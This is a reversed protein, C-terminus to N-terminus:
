KLDVSRLWYFVDTPRPMEEMGTLRDSRYARLYDESYLFVAVADDVIIQQAENYIERRAEQDPLTQGTVLLENLHENNYGFVRQGLTATHFVWYIHDPDVINGFGSLALEASGDRHQERFTAADLEQVEIDIGVAELYQEILLAEDTYSSTTKLTVPTGAVWGAEALLQMAKEPDYPYCNVQDNYFGSNVSLPGCTRTVVGPYLTMVEEKDIAYAIAQRVRVDSLNPAATNMTVMHYGLGPSALVTIDPSDALRQADDASIDIILDFDGSELGIVRTAAEEVWRFELKDVNPRGGWYDDFAALVIREGRDWSEFKFPGTGVYMPETWDDGRDISFLKQNRVDEATLENGNADTTPEYTAERAEAYYPELIHEPLIRINLAVTQLMFYGVPGATNVIVTYDDVKEVPNESNLIYEDVRAQTRTFTWVVDDANFDEGDHWKVGQRLNFQYSTDSLQEWSEALGPLLEDTRTDHYVLPEFMQWSVAFTDPTFAYARPDLNTPESSLGITVVKEEQAVTMGGALALIVCLAALLSGHKRIFRYM